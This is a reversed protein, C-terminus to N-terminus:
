LSSNLFKYIDVNDVFNYSCVILITSPTWVLGFDVLLLSTIGTCFSSSVSPGTFFYCVTQLM